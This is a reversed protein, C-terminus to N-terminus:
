FRGVLRVPVPQTLFDGLSGELDARCLVREEVAAVHRDGGGELELHAATDALVELVPAVVVRQV